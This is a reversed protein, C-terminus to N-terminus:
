VFADFVNWLIDFYVKWSQKGFHSNNHYKPLFLSWINKKIYDLLIGWLEKIVIIKNGGSTESKVNWFLNYYFLQLLLITFFKISSNFFNFLLFECKDMGSNSYYFNFLNMLFMIKEIKILSRCVVLNGFNFM